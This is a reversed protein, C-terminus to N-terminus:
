QEAQSKQRKKLDWITEKAAFFSNVRKLGSKVKQFEVQDIRTQLFHPLDNKLVNIM